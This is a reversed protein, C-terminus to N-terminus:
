QRSEGEGGWHVGLYQRTVGDVHPHPAQQTTITSLPIGLAPPEQRLPQTPAEPTGTPVSTSTIAKQDSLPDQILPDQLPQAQPSPQTDDWPTAICVSNFGFSMLGVVGVWVLCRQWKAPGCLQFALIKTTKCDNM